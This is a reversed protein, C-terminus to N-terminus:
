IQCQGELAVPPGLKELGGVQGVSVPSLVVGHGGWETAM